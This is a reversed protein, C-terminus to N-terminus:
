WTVKQQSGVKWVADKNPQTVKPVHDKDWGFDCGCDGNHNGSETKQPWYSSSTTTWSTPAYSGDRAQLAPAPSASVSLATSLVTAAALPALACKALTTKAFM